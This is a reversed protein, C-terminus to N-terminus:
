AAPRQKKRQDGEPKDPRSSKGRSLRTLFASMREQLRAFLSSTDGTKKLEKKLNEIDEKLKGYEPDHGSYGLEMAKDLEYKAKDLLAIAGQKDRDREVKAQDIAERALLLPLPTVRDIILLTGVATTLLKAADDARKEDLLRVAGSLAIPFSALPLNYTRVRLESMLGHLLTRATPYDGLLTAAEAADALDAVSKLDEPATDFVVVEQSVPILANAPNRALLINIKGSARELAALAEDTKNSLIADIARKTEDIVAIADRDLIKEGQQRAQDREKQIAQRAQAASLVTPSTQSSKTSTNVAATM